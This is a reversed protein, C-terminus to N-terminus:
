MLLCAQSTTKKSSTGRRNLKPRRPLMQAGAQQELKVPIQPSTAPVDSVDKPKEHVQSDESLSSDIATPPRTNGSDAIDEKCNMAQERQTKYKKETQTFSSKEHKDCLWLIKGNPMQCRKLGGCTRESDEELVTQLVVAYENQFDSSTKSCLDQLKRSLREGEPTTLIPMNIKSHKLLALVRAVYPAIRKLYDDLEAGELPPFNIEEQMEHWGMEHECLVKLCLKDSKEGTKDPHRLESHHGKGIKKVDDKVKLDILILRPYVEMDMTSAYLAIHRLLKRQSLELAEQFAVSHQVTESTSAAQSEKPLFKEVEVLLELLAAENEYQLNIKPCNQSHGVTLLGIESRVWSFGTGVVALITPIKLTTLAFRFEMKCNKSNAYEDSVFAVMVKAKRLGDAIDEFFGEQGMQEIDLWCKIGKSELFEKIKRPDGWGLAGEKTASGLDVAMKSNAWCYSIFCDPYSDKKKQKRSMIADFLEQIKSNYRDKQTMKVFIEDALVLNIDTDQWTLKAGIAVLILNTHLTQKMYIILDRCKPIAVFEDSIGVIVIQASKIALTLDEINASEPDDCYSVNFGESRLDDLITNPDVVNQVSGAAPINRSTFVFFVRVAVNEELDQLERVSRSLHEDFNSSADPPLFAQIENISIIHFNKVCQLFPAKLEFARKIKSAAFMCPDLTLEFVCEACPISYDYSVGSYSDAILCEFVEHVLFITNEPKYGRATVVVETNSIQLLLARHNNKNLLFGKKWMVSSDSFEHLRVQVRNFLGAPLYQFKYKIKSERECIDQNVAPFDYTPETNPLLCPVINAEENALPFTLDFEETLRLLWPHLEEPYSAWIRPMDNYYLKGDQIPGEHVTVICAMVDVIWQPVIVIHSRLFNTNFFQVSGLDHLFQVAQILEPKDMIGATDAAEEVEHFQLLSKGEKRLKDLQIELSLWAEPIKEGMYKQSLASMILSTKLEQIGEGSFSSVFYFGVIQPFRRKLEEKPLKGKQVKDSHTGVILIPAKPAHCAISSLWFDLGAHEYGLRINWLLLYVARNSLFFQHTNYYVTQGAFDWVSFHLPEDRDIAETESILHKVNVQWETIDIGDTIREAYNEYFNHQKDTLARVLSTKGAGGLGVMMLKTRKCSVSGQLLRKLYGMIALFGRRVVEQPPTKLNVCERLHLKKLPLKALEASVTLLSPNYEVILVELSTLDKVSDPVTTFAHYPLILTNLTTMKMITEPFANEEDDQNGLKGLRPFKSYLLKNVESLKVANNMKEGNNEVKEVMEQREKANIRRYVIYKDLFTNLAPSSFSTGTPMLPLGSMDLYTLALSSFKDPISDIYNHALSLKTLNTLPCILTMDVTGINDAYLEVLSTLSSIVQPLVEMPNSSIDLIKLLTLQGIDDPLTQLMNGKVHIEELCTNEKLPPLEGVTCGDLWLHTLNFFNSFFDEPLSYLPNNELHMVFINSALNQFKSISFEQIGASPSNAMKHAICLLGSHAQPQHFIQAFGSADSRIANELIAQTTERQIQSMEKTNRYFICHMLYLRQLRKMALEILPLKDTSLKDAGACIASINRPLYSKLNLLVAYPMQLVGAWSKLDVLQDGKLLLGPHNVMHFDHGPCLFHIRQQKDSYVDSLMPYRLNDLTLNAPLFIFAEKQKEMLQELDNSQMKDETKHLYTKTQYELVQATTPNKYCTESVTNPNQSYSSLAHEFQAQLILDPKMGDSQKENFCEFPVPQAHEEKLYTLWDFPKTYYRPPQLEPNLHKTQALEYGRAAMFGIPHLDENDLESWFDSNDADDEFWCDDQHLYGDYHILVQDQKRDIDTITAVCIHHPKRRGVAELRMGIEVTTDASKFDSDTVVVTASVFTDEHGMSSIKLEYRNFPLQITHLLVPGMYIDIEFPVHSKIRATITEGETLTGLKETIDFMTQSEAVSSVILGSHLDICISDNPSLVSCHQCGFPDLLAAIRVDCPKSLELLSANVTGKSNLSKVLNNNFFRPRITMDMMALLSSQKPSIGCYGCPGHEGLKLIHNHVIGVVNEPPASISESVSRLLEWTYGFTKFVYEVVTKYKEMTSYILRASKKIEGSATMFGCVNLVKSYDTQGVMVAVISDYLVAGTRWIHILPHLTRLHMLITQIISPTVIQNLVFSYVLHFEGTAKKDFETFMKIPMVSTEPLNALSTISKTTTLWPYPFERMVEEVESWQINRKKAEEQLMDVPWIPTNDAITHDLGNNTKGAPCPSLLLDLIECLWASNAIMTEGNTKTWSSLKGISTLFQVAGFSRLRKVFNTTSKIVNAARYLSHVGTKLEKPFNLHFDQAWKYIELSYNIEKNEPLEEALNFIAKIIEGQKGKQDVNIELCSIVTKNINDQLRRASSYEFQKALPIPELYEFSYNADKTHDAIEKLYKKVKEKMLETSVTSVTNTNCGVLLFNINSRQGLIQLITASIASVEETVKTKEKLVFPLIVVCGDTIMFSSLTQDVELVTASSEGDKIDPLIRAMVSSQSEGLLIASFNIDAMNQKVFCAKFLHSTEPKLIEKETLDTPATPFLISCGVMKISEASIWRKPLLTVGTGTLNISTLKSCKESLALLGANTVKKCGSISLWTLDPFTEAMWAIGADTINYCGDLIIQKVAKLRAEEANRMIAFTIDTLQAIGSFNLTVEGRAPVQLGIIFKIKHIPYSNGDWFNFCLVNQNLTVPKIDVKVDEDDGLLDDAFHGETEIGNSQPVPKPMPKPKININTKSSAEPSTEQQPTSSGTPKSEMKQQISKFLPPTPGRGKSQIEQARSM